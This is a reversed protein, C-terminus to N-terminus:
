VRMLKIKLKISELYTNLEERGETTTSNNVIKPSKESFLLQLVYGRGTSGGIPL